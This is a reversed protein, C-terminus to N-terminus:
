AKLTNQQKRTTSYIKYDNQKNANYQKTASQDEQSINFWVNM